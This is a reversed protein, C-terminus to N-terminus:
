LPQATVRGTDRPGHGVRGSQSFQDDRSDVRGSGRPKLVEQGSAIRSTEFGRSGVRGSGVRPIKFGEQGTFLGPITVEELHRGRVGRSAGSFHGLKSFSMCKLLAARTGTRYNKQLPRRLLHIHGASGVHLLVFPLLSCGRM